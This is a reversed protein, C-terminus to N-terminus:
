VFGQARELVSRFVMRDQAHESVLITRVNGDAARGIGIALHSHHRPRVTGDTYLDWQENDPCDFCGCHFSLVKSGINYNGWEVHLRQNCMEPRLLFGTGSDYVVAVERGRTIDSCCCIFVPPPFFCCCDGTLGIGDLKLPTRGEFSITRARSMQQTTPAMVHAVPMAHAVAVPLGMMPQSMPVATAEVVFISQGAGMAAVSSNLGLTAMCLDVKEVLTMSTTQSELGLQNVAQGITEVVPTGQALGLQARLTEIKEALAM